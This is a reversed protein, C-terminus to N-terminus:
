ASNQLEQAARFWDDEHAGHTQGRENWLRYALEAIKGDEISRGNRAHVDREEEPDEPSTELSELEGEPIELLVMPNEELVDESELNGPEADDMVSRGVAVPASAAVLRLPELLKVLLEKRRILREMAADIEALESTAQEYATQYCDVSM